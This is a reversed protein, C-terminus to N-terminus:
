SSATAPGDGHVVLVPCTAHEACTSSVSGLLLGAFGGHGRSGVILLEAGASAELLLQAPNGEGVILRLGEPRGDPFVADVAQTLVTSADAAPDFNDPLVSWGGGYPFHWAIVAEIPAGTPAAIRNAWRLAAKSSESGDVGVVVRNDATPATSTTVPHRRSKEADM